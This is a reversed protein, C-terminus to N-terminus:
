GAVRSIPVAYDLSSAETVSSSEDGSHFSKREQMIRGVAESVLRASDGMNQGTM